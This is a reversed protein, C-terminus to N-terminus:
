SIIKSKLRLSRIQAGSWDAANRVCEGDTEFHEEQRLQEENGHVIADLVPSEGLTTKFSQFLLYTQGQGKRSVECELDGSRQDGEVHVTWQEPTAGVADYEFECTSAPIPPTDLGVSVKGAQGPHITFQQENSKGECLLLVFLTQFAVLLLAPTIM